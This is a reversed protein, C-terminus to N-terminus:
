MSLWYNFKILFVNQPFIDFLESATSVGTNELPMAISNWVNPNSAMIEYDFEGVRNSDASAYGNDCSAKAVYYDNNLIVGMNSVDDYSLNTTSHIPPDTPTFYPNTISRYLDYQDAGVVPLWNLRATTANLRSISVTTSALPTTTASGDTNSVPIDVGGTGAFQSSTFTIASTGTGVARFHITMITGSGSKPPEPNLQTAAYWITGVSNDATNKVTWLNQLFNGAEVNIGNGAYGDFDVVELITPDFSLQVDAGYLGIVDAVNVDVQIIECGQITAPSPNLSLVATQAKLPFRSASAAWIVLTICTLTFFIIFPRKRWKNKIKRGDHSNIHM